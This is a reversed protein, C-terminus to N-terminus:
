LSGIARGSAGVNHEANNNASACTPTNKDSVLFDDADIGDSAFPAM